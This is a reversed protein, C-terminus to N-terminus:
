SSAGRRVGPAVEGVDAATLELPRQLAPAAPTAAQNRGGRGCGWCPGGDDASACRQNREVDVQRCAPQLRRLRNRRGHAVAAASQREYFREPNGQLVASHGLHGHVQRIVFVDITRTNSATLCSASRWPM